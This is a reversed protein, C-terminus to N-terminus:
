IARASDGAAVEVLTELAEREGERAGPLLPLLLLLFLSKVPFPFGIQFHEKKRGRGM